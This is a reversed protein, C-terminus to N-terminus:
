LSQAIIKQEVPVNNPRSVQKFFDLHHRLVLLLHQLLELRALLPHVFVTPVEFASCAPESEEAPCLVNDRWFNCKSHLSFLFQCTM